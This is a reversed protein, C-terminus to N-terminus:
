RGAAAAAAPAPQPAVSSGAWNSVITKSQEWVSKVAPPVQPKNAYRDVLAVVIRVADRTFSSYYYRARLFHAYAIPILLSNQLLLVGVVARLMILLELRAVVVMAVDYNSKVWIGITKSLPSQPPPSATGNARPPAPAAPKFIMPLLTTRAFTLSHFLSFVAYPILALPLPRSSWWLLAMIFYQVNEDALARHLFAPNPQPVGLSKYCVIAYSTIAGTFAAKYYWVYAASKFSIYAKVYWITCILVIFHGFAWVYHPYPSAM